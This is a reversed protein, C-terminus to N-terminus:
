PTIPRPEWGSGTHALIEGYGIDLLLAEVSSYHSSLERPHHADSCLTIRIGRERCKKLIPISPYLGVKKRIGGTSVELIATSEAIAALTEDVAKGYWDEDESFYRGNTNNKKIVDLHGVITHRNTGVMQRVLEYYREVAARANGHFVEAIGRDFREPDADVPWPVGQDNQDVYHVSGITFDLNLSFLGAQYEEIGPVFDVELGVLIRLSDRYKDRIAQITRLYDPLQGEKMAFNNPFPLPAHSSFGLPNMGQRVAEIAFAEPEGTGDCFSCHTHYNGRIMLRSRGKEAVTATRVPITTPPSM